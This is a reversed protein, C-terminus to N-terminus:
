GDGPRSEKRGTFMSRVLNERHLRGTLVVGIVHLAILALVADAAYIHTDQVWAVGFFQLTIQLHGSVSTVLLALLMAVIMASGAPNHGLHRRARGRMLASTYRVVTRPSALFNSFRAYRPGAFGWIVRFALLGLVAYGAVNHLTDFVNATFWAVAVCIVLAWHFVRLPWDWITVEASADSRGPPSVANTASDPL